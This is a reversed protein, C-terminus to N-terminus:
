GPLTSERVAGNEMRVRFEFLGPDFAESHSILFIQHFSKRIVGKTLLDVLALTRERDFSSLPEDLFLWYPRTTKGTPLTALAFGLRLALSIQDKAGGSFAKKQKNEGAREDYILLINNNSDWDLDKYRGATLAPLLFRVNQLTMPMVREVISQRTNNVIKAARRKIDLSKEAMKLATIETELALLTADLGLEEARVKRKANMSHLVQQRASVETEWDAARFQGAHQLDPDSAAETEAETATLGLEQYCEAIAKGLEKVQHDYTAIQNGLTENEVGKDRQEQQLAPVDLATYQSQILASLEPIRIKAEQLSPVAEMPLIQVWAAHFEAEKSELEERIAVIEARIRPLNAVEGADGKLTQMQLSLRTHLASSLTPLTAAQLWNRVPALAEQMQLNVRIAEQRDIAKRALETRDTQGLQERREQQKELLIGLQKKTQQLAAEATEWDSKLMSDPQQIRSAELTRRENQAQTQWDAEQNGSLALETAIQRITEAEIEAIQYKETQQSLLPDKRQQAATAAAMQTRAQDAAEQIASANDPINGAQLLRPLQEAIQSRGTAISETAHALQASTAELGAHNQKSLREQDRQLAVQLANRSAQLEALKTQTQHLAQQTSNVDRDPLSSAVLRAAESSSPVAIGLTELALRRAREEAQRRQQQDAFSQAQEQFFRTEMELRAVADKAAKEATEAVQVANKTQFLLFGAGVGLLLGIPLLFLLLHTVFAVVCTLICSALLILAPFQRKKADARQETAQNQQQEAEKRRVQLDGNKGSTPDTEANREAADAWALLAQRQQATQEAQSAQEVEAQAQQVAADLCSLEETDQAIKQADQTYQTKRQELAQRNINLNHERQDCDARLQLLKATEELISLRDAWHAYTAAQTEAEAHQQGLRNGEEQARQRAIMHQLLVTLRSDRQLAQQRNEWATQAAERMSQREAQEQELARRSNEGREWEAQLADHSQLQAQLQEQEMALAQGETEKEELSLLTQHWQAFQVQEAHRAPLDRELEELTQRRQEAQILGTTTQQWTQVHLPLEQTLARLQQQYSQGQELQTQIAKRRVNNDQQRASAQKIQGELQRQQNRSERAQQYRMCRHAAHVAQAKVPIQADLEAVEIRKKATIVPERDARTEKFESELVSLARINLLESITEKRKNPDLNELNELKKQEVFCTNLLASKSIALEMLLRAKVESASTILESGGDALPCVLRARQAAKVIREILFSRDHISFELVVRMEDTGYRKLEPINVDTLTDGYLAFYVAEFLSSKGAENHGEILITGREPFRLDLSAIQKFNTLQLRHLVIM